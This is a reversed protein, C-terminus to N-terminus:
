DHAAVQRRVAFRSHQELRVLHKGLDAEGLVGVSKHLRVRTIGPDAHPLISPLPAAECITSLLSNLPSASFPGPRLTECAASRGSAGTEPLHRAERTRFPRVSILSVDKGAQLRHRSLCIAM